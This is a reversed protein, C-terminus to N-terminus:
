FARRKIASTIDGCSKASSSASLKPLLSTTTLLGAALQEHMSALLFRWTQKQRSPSLWQRWIPLASESATSAVSMETRGKLNNENLYKPTPLEGCFKDTSERRELKPVATCLVCSHGWVFEVSRSQVRFASSFHSAIAESHVDRHTGQAPVPCSAVRFQIKDAIHFNLTSLRVTTSLKGQSRHPSLCHSYHNTKRPSTM